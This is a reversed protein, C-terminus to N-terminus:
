REYLPLWGQPAQLIILAMATPYVTNGNEDAFEGDRKQTTKLVELTKGYWPVWYQDGCTYMALSAYFAGYMFYRRAALDAVPYRQYDYAIRDRAPGILPDSMHGGATLAEICTGGLSPSAERGFFRYKFNGDPMAERRVFEQAKMVSNSPVSFGSKKAARLIWLVNATLSVDGQGEKTFQYRWGGDLRQCALTAQLSRSIVNQLSPQWPTNGYAYILAMTAYLHEYMPGYTSVGESAVIGNEQANKLMFEIARDLAKGQPGVRPMNGAAMLALAGLATVGTSRTYAKDSWSGDAAQNSLLYSMARQKIKAADETLLERATETRESPRPTVLFAPDKGPFLPGRKKEQEALLRDAESAHAQWTLPAVAM